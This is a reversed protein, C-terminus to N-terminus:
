LRPSHPARRHAYLLHASQPRPQPSPLRRRCGGPLHAGALYTREQWTAHYESQRIEEQVTTWWDTSVGLIGELNEPLGVAPVPQGPPVDATVHQSTRTVGPIPSLLVALSLTIALITSHIQRNM